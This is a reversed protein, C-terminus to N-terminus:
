QTATEDEGLLEKLYIVELCARRISKSYGDLRDYLASVTYSTNKDPFKTYELIEMQLQEVEKTFLRITKEKEKIKALVNERTTM